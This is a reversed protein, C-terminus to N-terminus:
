TAMLESLIDLRKIESGDYRKSIDKRADLKQELESEIKKKRLDFEM